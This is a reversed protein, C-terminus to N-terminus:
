PLPNNKIFDIAKNLNKIMEKANDVGGIVWEDCSHPLEIRWYASIPHREGDLFESYNFDLTVTVEGFIVNPHKKILECIKIEM